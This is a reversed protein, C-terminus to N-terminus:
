NLKIKLFNNIGDTIKRGNYQRRTDYFNQISEEFDVSLVNPIISINDETTQQITKSIRRVARIAAENVIFELDAGSLGSTVAAVAGLDVKNGKGLSGIRKEDVGKGEQFNPLKKSYVRLIRERGLKEPLDVKIIRDFRGPRTLASDLVERRNTAALVCIGRKSDLGDMCALLQNLTRESEDNSKMHFGLTDEARSKGLADIEDIFMICPAIKSARSFTKRIRAAGRGVFMEVFDSGSCYLLPLDVSAACARALMTKGTGPPGELLLGTPARAGLLSYKEPHIITDVLEMVELKANEIGEIDEFKVVTGNYQSSALKGPSNLGVSGNMARYIQNMSLVYFITLSLSGMVRLMDNDKNLGAKFIVNHEHLFHILEPSANPTMTYCSVRSKLGPKSLKNINFFPSSDLALNSKHTDKDILFTIKDKGIVINEMQIENLNEAPICNTKSREIINMFTSYPVEVPKQTCAKLVKNTYTSFLVSLVLIQVTLSIKSGQSLKLFRIKLSVFSNMAQVKIYRLIKMVKETTFLNKNNKNNKECNKDLVHEFSM